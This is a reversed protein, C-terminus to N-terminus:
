QNRAARRRDSWDNLKQKRKECNCNGKTVKKVVAAIGTRKLVAEVADGARIKM